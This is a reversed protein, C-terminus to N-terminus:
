RKPKEADRRKIRGADRKATASVPIPPILLFKAVSKLALWELRYHIKKLATRM